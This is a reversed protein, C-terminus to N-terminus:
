VAPNLVASVAAAMGVPGVITIMQRQKDGPASIRESYFAIEYMDYTETVDAVYVGDYNNPYGVGRYVDGRNGETFWELNAIEYGNSDAAAASPTSVVTLESDFVSALVRGQMVKGDFKGLKFPGRKSTITITTADDSEVKIGFEGTGDPIGMKALTLNLSETIGAVTEALVNTQIKWWGRISTADVTNHAGYEDLYIVVEVSEGIKPTGGFVVTDVKNSINLGKEGESLVKAPDILASTYVEGGKGMAVTYKLDGRVEIAVAGDVVASIDTGVAATSAIFLNRVQSDGFTSM